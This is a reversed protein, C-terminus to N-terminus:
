DNAPGSATPSTVRARAERAPYRNRSRLPFKALQVAEVLHEGMLGKQQGNGAERVRTSIHRSIQCIVRGWLRPAHLEVVGGSNSRLSGFKMDKTAVAWHLM